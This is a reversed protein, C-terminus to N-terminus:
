LISVDCSHKVKNLRHFVHVDIILMSINVTSHTVLAVSYTPENGWLPVLHLAINYKFIDFAHANRFIHIIYHTEIYRHQKSLSTNPWNLMGCMVCGDLMDM